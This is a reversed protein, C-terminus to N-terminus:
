GGALEQAAQKFEKEIETLQAEGGQAQPGKFRAKAWGFYYALLLVVTIVM